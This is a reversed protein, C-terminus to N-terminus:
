CVNVACHQVGLCRRQNKVASDNAGLTVIKLILFIHVIHTDLKLLCFVGGALYLTRGQRETGYM